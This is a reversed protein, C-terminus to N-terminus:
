SGMRKAVFPLFQFKTEALVIAMFIIIGGALMRPTFVEHLFIVSFISGFVCELSLFLAATNPEAYKQCVNQLLFAVMTSGLGLYLMGMIINPQFAAAPFGGDMIPAVIWSCIAAMLLQLVTLIIPDSDETYRDIYIIHLAYGLGCLLTLVDGINMTLDGNLSLLGIGLIAMFAAVISATGPKKKNLIWHLFPVLIVYITTLFANKSATTYQCGITQLLYSLFLFVGLIAGRALIHKNLHRLRRIFIIGLVVAAITFRFALMYSAPIYDLSDKVVVFAFGWIVTTVLLGISAWIQIRKNMGGM